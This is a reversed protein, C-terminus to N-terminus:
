PKPKGEQMISIVRNFADRLPEDGPLRIWGRYIEIADAMADTAKRLRANEAELRDIEALYLVPTKGVSATAQVVIDVAKLRANEEQLKQIEAECAAVAMDAIHLPIMRTRDIDSMARQVM